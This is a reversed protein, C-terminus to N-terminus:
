VSPRGGAAGLVSVMGAPFLRPQPVCARVVSPVFGASGGHASGRAAGAVYRVQHPLHRGGAGRLGGPLVAGDRLGHRCRSGADPQGGAGRGAGRAAALRGAEGQLWCRGQERGL